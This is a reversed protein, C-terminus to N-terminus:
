SKHCPLDFTSIFVINQSRDLNDANHIVLVLMRIGRIVLDEIMITSLFDFGSLRKTALHREKKKFQWSNHSVIIFM